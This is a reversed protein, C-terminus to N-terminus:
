ATREPPEWALLEIAGLAVLAVVILSVLVAPTPMDWALFVLAPVLIAAIRLPRRNAGVWRGVTGADSEGRTRGIANQFWGRVAVAIRSPGALFAGLSVLLAVAAIARIGVRLWHVTIDYFAAAADHPLAPGVVSDLYYSRGITLLVGVAAAGATVVLGAQLLTRRRNRSVAIAGAFCAAALLPLVIALAKLARIGRQANELGKADAIVFRTPIADAPVRDFLNIGRDDLRQKVVDLVPALDLVVKGNDTDLRGQGTLAIVLRRHVRRNAQVWIQEFSDSELARRTAQGAFNRVGAAIAPALVQTRPPLVNRTEAEVDVRNFLAATVDAAIASRIAENKALPKVTRVYHDTSTVQNKLWVSLVAAPTLVFGLVLLVVVVAHRRRSSRAHVTEATSAATVDPVEPNAYSPM